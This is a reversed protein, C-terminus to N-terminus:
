SMAAPVGPIFWYGFWYGGLGVREVGICADRLTPKARRTMTM